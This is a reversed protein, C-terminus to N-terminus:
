GRLLTLIELLKDSVSAFNDNIAGEQATTAGSGNVAPVAVLTDVGTGGTSDTFEVIATGGGGIGTLLYGVAVAVDGSGDHDFSMCRGAMSATASDGTVTQDDLIYVMRGEDTVVVATGTDNVFRFIGSRVKCTEDGDSGASNDVNEQAVGMAVLGAVSTAPAIFGAADKVVLAGKYIVASAAVGEEFEMAFPSAIEVTSKDATLATM